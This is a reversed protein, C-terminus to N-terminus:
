FEYKASLGFNAITPAYVKQIGTPTKISRVVQKEGFLVSELNGFMFNLDIKTGLFDFQKKVGINLNFKSDHKVYAQDFAYEIDKNIDKENSNANYLKDYYGDDLGMLLSIHFDKIDIGTQLQLYNMIAGPLVNGRQEANFGKSYSLTVYDNTLRFNMGNVWVRNKKDGVKDVIIKNYYEASITRIYEKDINVLVSGIYQNSWKEVLDRVSLSNETSMNNNSLPEYYNGGGASLELDKGFWNPFWTIRGVVTKEPKHDSFILGGSTELLLNKYVINKEGNIRVVNKIKSGDNSENELHNFNAGFKFAGLDLGALNINNLNLVSGFHINELNLNWEQEDEMELEMNTDNGQYSLGFSLDDDKNIPLTIAGALLLKNNEEVLNKIGRISGDKESLKTKSDSYDGYLEIAYDNSIIRLYDQFTQGNPFLKLSKFKEEFFEPVGTNGAFFKNSILVDESQTFYDFVLNRKIIDNSVSIAKSNENRPKLIMASALSSEFTSYVSGKFDLSFMKNDFRSLISRFETKPGLVPFPIENLKIYTQFDSQRLNNYTGNATNSVTSIYGPIYAQLSKLLDDQYIIEGTKQQITTEPKKEQTGEVITEKELQGMQVYNSDPQSQALVSSNLVLYATSLGFLTKVAKKIKM